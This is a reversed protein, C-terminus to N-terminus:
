YSHIDWTLSLKPSLLESSFDVKITIHTIGRPINLLSSVLCGNKEVPHPISITQNQKPKFSKLYILSISTSKEDFGELEIQHFFISKEDGFVPFTYEPYTSSFINKLTRM